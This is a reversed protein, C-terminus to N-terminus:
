IRDSEKLVMLIFYFLIFYLFLLPFFILLSFFRLLVLPRGLLRLKWIGNDKMREKIFGAKWMKGSREREGM